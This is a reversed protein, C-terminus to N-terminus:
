MTNCEGTHGHPFNPIFFFRNSGNLYFMFGHTKRCLDCVCPLYFYPRFIPLNRLSKHYM